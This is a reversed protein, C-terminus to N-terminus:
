FPDEVCVDSKGVKVVRIVESQFISNVQSETQLPCRCLETFPYIKLNCTKAISNPSKAISNPSKAISNTGNAISNTAKAISNTGNAISNTPKAISNTGNAISNTPKAISNMAKAILTTQLLFPLQLFCSFM